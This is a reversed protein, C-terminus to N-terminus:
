RGGVTAKVAKVWNRLDKEKAADFWHDTVQPHANKSFDLRESAMTKGKYQSVLVKKASKRAWPSGTKEDVMTLGEYLFRGEPSAAACVVGSGALSTSVAKTKAIFTGTQMPMFPVMSTMVASDLAFQAKQFRKDLSTLNVTVKVDGKIVTFKKFHKIKNKMLSGGLCYLRCIDIQYEGAGNLRLLVGNRM